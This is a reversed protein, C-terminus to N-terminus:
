VWLWIQDLEYLEVTVVVCIISFSAASAIIALCVLIFTLLFLVIRFLGYFELFIIINKNTRYIVIFLYWLRYDAEKADICFSVWYAGMDVVKHGVKVNMYLFLLIFVDFKCDFFDFLKSNLEVIDKVISVFITIWADSIGNDLYLKDLLIRESTPVM